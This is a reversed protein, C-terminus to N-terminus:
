WAPQSSPPAIVKPYRAALCAAPAYDISFLGTVLDLVMHTM